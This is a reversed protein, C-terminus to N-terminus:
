LRTSTPSSCDAPSSAPRNKRTASFCGSRTETPPSGARAPTESSNEISSDALGRERALYSRYDALLEEVPGDVVVPAPAAVAGIERLFRLPLRTCRGWRMSYGAALRASEFQKVREPTLESVALRQREVWRSLGDLQWVLDSVTWPSYGQAALWLRYAEEWSALSGSVRAVSSRDM